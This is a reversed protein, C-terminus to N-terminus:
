RKGEHKFQAASYLESMLANDYKIHRVASCNGEKHVLRRSGTIASEAVLVLHLRFVVTVAFHSGHM